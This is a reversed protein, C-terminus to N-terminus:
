RSHQADQERWAGVWEGSEIAPRDYLEHKWYYIFAPQGSELEVATRTYGTPHGELRDCDRLTERDVMFVEGKVWQGRKTAPATVPVGGGYIVGPARDTRNFHAHKLLRNNGYGRKLTGYVFLPVRDGRLTRMALVHNKTTCVDDPVHANVVNYKCECRACQLYLHLHHRGIGDVAGGLVEAYPAGSGYGRPPQHGFIRCLYNM